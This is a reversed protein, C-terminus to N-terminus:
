RYWDRDIIEVIKVIEGEVLDIEEALQAQLSHVVKAYKEVLHRQAAKAPVYNTADLEWCYAPPFTGQSGGLSSGRLWHDDVVEYGIILM